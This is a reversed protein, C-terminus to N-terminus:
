RRRSELDHIRREEEDHRRDHENLRQQQVINLADNEKLLQRVEKLTAGFDEFERLFFGFQVLGMVIIGLLWPLPIRFSLGFFRARRREDGNM